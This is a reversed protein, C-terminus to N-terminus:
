ALGVIVAYALACALVIAAVFLAAMLNDFLETPEDLGARQAAGDLWPPRAAERAVRRACREQHPLVVGTRLPCTDSQDCPGYKDCCSM